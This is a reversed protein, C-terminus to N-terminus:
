RPSSSGDARPQRENAFDLRMQLKGGDTDATVFGASEYIRIAAKAAIAVSLEVSRVGPMRRALLLCDNILWRGFGNGRRSPDVYFGWLRARDSKPIHHLGVMGLLEPDFAGIVVAGVDSRNDALRQRVFEVNLAPDSEISEAFAYADTTLAMRRIAVAAEADAPHLLRVEM